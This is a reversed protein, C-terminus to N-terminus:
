ITFIVTIYGKLRASNSCVAIKTIQSLCCQQLLQSLKILRHNPTQHHDLKSSEYQHQENNMKNVVKGKHKLLHLFKSFFEINPTKNEM